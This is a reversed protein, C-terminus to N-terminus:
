RELSGLICIVPTLITQFCKGILGSQGIMHDRMALFIQMLAAFQATFTVCVLFFQFGMAQAFM